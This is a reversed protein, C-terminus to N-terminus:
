ARPLLWQPLDAGSDVVLNWRWEEVPVVWPQHRTCGFLVGLYIEVNVSRLFGAGIEAPISILQIRGVIETDRPRLHRLRSGGMSVLLIVTSYVNLWHCSVGALASRVSQQYTVAVHM